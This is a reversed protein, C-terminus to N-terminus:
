SDSTYLFTSRGFTDHIRASDFICQPLPVLVCHGFFSAGKEM